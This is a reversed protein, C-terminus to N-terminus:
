GVLYRVRLLALDGKHRARLALNGGRVPPLIPLSRVYIGFLPFPWPLFAAHHYLIAYPYGQPEPLSLWFFSLYRCRFLLLGCLPSPPMEQPNLRQSFIDRGDQPIEMENSMTHPKEDRQGGARRGM